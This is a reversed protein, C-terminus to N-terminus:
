TPIESRLNKEAGEISVPSIGVRVILPEQSPRRTFIVKIEKGTYRDGAKARTITGDVSVDISEVPGSLNLAFFVAREHAWGTTSRRGTISGNSEVTLEAQQVRCNLGHVLDVMLGQRASSSGYRYRHMGCRTTATLEAHVKPTDLEVSYHGPRAIEREHSFFSRYGLESPAFVIGSAAGLAEIQMETLPQIRGVDWSWNLDEVMPMILLDGLDIGGTGQVHTHSFGNIVNDRYNYGSCHQWEYWDGQVNWHPEPPGSTDPSLQVLGFPLTAGPFMHGRWGTGVMPNASTVANATKTSTLQAGADGAFISLLSSYPLIKAASLGVGSKLFARRPQSSPRFSKM